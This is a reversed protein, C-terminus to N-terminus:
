RELEWVLGTMSHPRLSTQVGSAFNDIPREVVAVKPEPTEFENNDAISESWLLYGTATGGRARGDFHISVPRADRTDLNVLILGRRDGDAFGYSLIAPWPGTTTIGDRSNFVGTAEFTPDAGAHETAVLDGAIVRNALRCALFTPRYREHGRRMNLVTGWLRVPGIGQANYSHQALSFLVQSRAGHEKLNVLMTNAVNIGGGLSTVIRNREDLANQGHTIHHNIEYVSLEIGHERSNAANQFMAGQENRARNLPWAFVWRFLKDNNDLLKTEEPSLSQIIYPAVGYRDANPTDGMIRDSMDGSAAQGAAHFVVNPRYYPSAKGAAILGRWYDPGNYGGIKYPTANNWAENGFEVHIRKLSDTWPKEHGLRARIKGFGVDAPAGLYEMFRRVEDEHLTGPLTYWPESGLHECLKYLQDLGYDAQSHGNYPGLRATVTSDFSHAAVPPMLTNELTNGGMQLYRLPGGTGYDKLMAVLDDTFATPNADGQKWLEVDDLLVQGGTVELVILLHPNDQPGSPEPVGRAELAVDHQKWEPSLEVEKSEGWGRDCAASLRPEGAKTKAWFRVHWTGNTDMYRQYATALRLHSKEGSGDMNLCSTGFAGPPVDGQEIRNEKSTWYGDLSRFQGDGLRLSEVLLGSMGQHAPLPKDLKWLTLTRDNRGDRYTIPETGLFKAQQGAAPGSLVTATAGDCIKLWDDSADFWSIPGRETMAPGWPCQRYSTGEFNWTTRVKTLVAGSYYADGGLMIGLPSCDPVLVKDTLTIRTIESPSDGLAPHVPTFLFLFAAVAPLRISFILTRSM